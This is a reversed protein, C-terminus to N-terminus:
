NGQGEPELRVGDVRDSGGGQGAEAGEGTVRQWHCGSALWLLRETTRGGESCHGSHGPFATWPPPTPPGSQPCSLHAPGPSCVPLGGLPVWRGGGPAGGESRGRAGHAGPDPLSQLRTAQLRLRAWPMRDSHGPSPGPSGPPRGKHVRGKGEWPWQRCGGGGGEMGLWGPGLSSPPAGRAPLPAQAPEQCGCQGCRGAWGQPEKGVPAAGWAQGAGLGSPWPERREILLRVALHGPCVTEEDRGM